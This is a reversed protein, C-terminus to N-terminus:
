VNSISVSQAVVELVPVSDNDLFQFIKYKHDPPIVEYQRKLMEGLFPTNDYVEQLDSVEWAGRDILGIVDQFEVTLLVENWAKISVIFKNDQREYLIIESDAFGIEHEISRIKQM